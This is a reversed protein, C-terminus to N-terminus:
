ARRVLTIGDRVPLLIQVVREDEAIREGLTSLARTSEDQDAPDELVRGSWLMNDLILLGREDLLEVCAEYYAPYNVKDADIFILDFREGSLAALTDLAPGERIEIMEAYSSAAIHRRAFAAHAPDFECSVIRADSEMGAAFSLASYGSYTGLELVRRPNRAFALFELFRGELAGTLMGPASLTARTEAEVAALHPEPATTHAICWSEIAPDTIVGGLRITADTLV